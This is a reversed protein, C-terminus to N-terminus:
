TKEVAPYRAYIGEAPRVIVDAILPDGNGRSRSGDGSPVVQVALVEWCVEDRDPVVYILLVGPAPIGPYPIGRAIIREDDLALTMYCGVPIPDGYLGSM